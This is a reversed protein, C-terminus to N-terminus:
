RAKNSRYVLDDRLRAGSRLPKGKEGAAAHDTAHKDPIFKREGDKVRDPILADEDKGHHVTRTFRSVPLTSGWPFARRM